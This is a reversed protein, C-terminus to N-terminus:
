LKKRYRRGEVVCDGSLVRAIAETYAIHEEALMRASLIHADDTDLVSTRPQEAALNAILVDVEGVEAILAEASGPVKLDRDDAFLEAGEARFLEVLDKGMFASTQTIIVRKGDMRKM